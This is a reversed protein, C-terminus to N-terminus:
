SKHLKNVLNVELNDGVNNGKLKFNVDEVLERMEKSKIRGPAKTLIDARQEVGPVHQVEVQENDVCERIFHYRKHIHKCRGHFIPNKTLAIASKNDIRIVVRKSSTEMIEDLIEQLWIAQKAVETAAM